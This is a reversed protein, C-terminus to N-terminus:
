WTERLLSEELLEKGYPTLYEPHTEDDPYILPVDIDGQAYSAIEYVQYVAHLVSGDIHFDRPLPLLGNDPLFLEDTGYGYEQKISKLRCKM